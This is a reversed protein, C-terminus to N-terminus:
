EDQTDVSLTDGNENVTITTVPHKAESTTSITTPQNRHKYTAVYVYTGSGLSIEEIKMNENEFKVESTGAPSCAALAFAAFLIILIRKM